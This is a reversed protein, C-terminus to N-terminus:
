GEIRYRVMVSAGKVRRVAGAPDTPPFYKTKVVTKMARETFVGGPWDMVVVANEVRGPETVDFKIFAFGQQGKYLESQPFYPKIRLEVCLEMEVGESWQVECDPGSPQRTLPPGANAAATVLEYETLKQRGRMAITRSDTEGFKAALIDASKRYYDKAATLDGDFKSASGLVRLASAYSITDTAKGLEFMEAARQANRRVETLSIDKDPPRRVIRSSTSGSGITGRPSLLSPFSAGFVTLGLFAQGVIIAVAPTEAALTEGGAIVARYREHGTQYDELRINADGAGLLCSLRDVINSEHATLLEACADFARAADNDRGAIALQNAYNAALVGTQRNSAGWEEVALAYAREAAALAKKRDGKADAAVFEKYADKIAGEDAAATTMALVAGILGLFTRM